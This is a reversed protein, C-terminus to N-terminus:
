TTRAKKFILVRSFYKQLCYRLHWEYSTFTYFNYIEDLSSTFVKVHHTLVATGLDNAVYTM